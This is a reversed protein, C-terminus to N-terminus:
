RISLEPIVTADTGRDLYGPQFDECTLQYYHGADLKANLLKIASASRRAFGAEYFMSCNVKIRVAGAPVRWSKRHAWHLGVFYEDDNVRLIYVAVPPGLRPSQTGFIVASETDAQPPADKAFAAPLTLCALLV